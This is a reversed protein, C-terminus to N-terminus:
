LSCANRYPNSMNSCTDPHDKGAPQISNSSAESSYRNPDARHYYATQRTQWPTPEKKKIHFSLSGSWGASILRKWICSILPINSPPGIVLSAPCHVGICDCLVGPGADSSSDDWLFRHSHYTPYLNFFLLSVHASVQYVRTSQWNAYPVSRVKGRAGFSATGISIKATQLWVVELCNVKRM